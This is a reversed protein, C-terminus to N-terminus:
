VFGKLGWHTLKITPDCWIEGGSDRFRKCFTYDESLYTGDDIMTDFLAYKIHEYLCNIESIRKKYVDESIMDEDLQMRLDALTANDKPSFIPESYEIESYAKIMDELVKRKILIFGTGAFDVTMPKSENEINKLKGDKWVELKSTDVKNRYAGCSVDKNLNWLKSVDEVSFEIDADIFFLTEFDSQLFESVINNRARPILSENWPTSWTFPMGVKTLEIATQMASKHFQGFCKSGYM